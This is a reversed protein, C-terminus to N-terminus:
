AEALSRIIRCPTGFAQVNDPIDHLVTSGAGVVVARGIRIGQIVNAGLGITSLAGLHVNGGTAANPQVCSFEELVNDHDVSANTNVFCGDALSTDTNVVAGAMVAIGRGLAVTSAITARPHIANIFQVSPSLERIRASIECRIHNNGIGVIVGLGRYQRVLDPIDTERGIVSYRGLRMGMQKFTDLFGLIRYRGQEEIIDAIVKGHGSAGVIVVSQTSESTPTSM